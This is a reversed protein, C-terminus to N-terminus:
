QLQEAVETCSTHLQEAVARCSEQLWVVLFKTNNVSSATQCQTCAPKIHTRCCQSVVEVTQRIQKHQDILQVAVKAVTCSRQLKVAVTSCSSAVAICSCIGLVWVNLWGRVPLRSTLPNLTLTHATSLMLVAWGASSAWSLLAASLMVSVFLLAQADQTGRVAADDECETGRRGDDVM